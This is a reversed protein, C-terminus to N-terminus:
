ESHLSGSTNHTHLILPFFFSYFFLVLFTSPSCQLEDRVYIHRSQQTRRLRVTCSTHRDAVAIKLFIRTSVLTFLQLVDAASPSLSLSLPIEPSKRFLSSERISSAIIYRRRRAARSSFFSTFISLLLYRVRKVFLSRYKQLM